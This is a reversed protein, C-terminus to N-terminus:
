VFRCRRILAEVFAALLAKVEDKPSTATTLALPLFVSEVYRSMDVACYQLLLTAVLLGQPAKAKCARQLVPLVVTGLDEHTLLPLFKSFAHARIAGDCADSSSTTPDVLCRLFLDLLRRKLVADVSSGPRVCSLLLLWTASVQLPGASSSCPTTTHIYPLANRRIGVQM